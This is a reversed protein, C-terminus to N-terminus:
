EHTHINDTNYKKMQSRERLSKSLKKPEKYAKSNLERKIEQQLLINQKSLNFIKENKRDNLVILSIILAIIVISFVFTLIVWM